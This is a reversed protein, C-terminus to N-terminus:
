RLPRRKPDSNEQCTEDLVNTADMRAACGCTDCPEDVNDNARELIMDLLVSGSNHEGPTYNCSDDSDHDSNSSGRPDPLVMVLINEGKTLDRCLKRM